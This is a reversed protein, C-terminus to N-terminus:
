WDKEQKHADSTNFFSPKMMMVKNFLNLMPRYRNNILGVIEVVMEITFIFVAIIIIGGFLTSKTLLMACIAFFTSLGYIILVTMRHSFGLNLICHHLHSKDPLYFPKKNVLRRIIASLSDFIPVGLIIVPVILTFFTISKFGLISIVAIMYGLFLSGTDGMFITAPHFNHLLFGLTSALLIITLALIVANGEMIAIGTITTLVISSVGAALGDLGDIFNIANTIAVIWLFTLPIGFGGLDLMYEFPFTIFEIYVGGYIVIAAAISQGFFKWKAPLGLIDDIMGTLAIISAGLIIPLIVPSVPMLLIIGIMFGVFIAMGGLLPTIKKHVKRQNPQDIAGVMIAMRKFFPTTLISVLFCVAFTVYIM